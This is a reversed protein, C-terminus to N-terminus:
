QRLNHLIQLFQSHSNDLEYLVMQRMDYNSYSTVINRGDIQLTFSTLVISLHQGDCTM